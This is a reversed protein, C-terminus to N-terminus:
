VHLTTRNMQSASELAKLLDKRGYPKSLLLSRRPRDTAQAIADPDGSVLIFTGPWASHALRRALLVGSDGHALAIDSLIIDIDPRLTLIRIADESTRAPFTEYGCAGLLATTADLITAEDDVVLVAGM